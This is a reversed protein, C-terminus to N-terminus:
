GIKCPSVVVMRSWERRTEAKKQITNPVFESVSRMEGTKFYKGLGGNKEVVRGQPCNREIVSYASLRDASRLIHAISPPPFYSRVSLRALLRGRSARTFHNRRTASGVSGFQLLGAEVQQANRVEQLGSSHDLRTPM